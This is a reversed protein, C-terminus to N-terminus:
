AIDLRLRSVQTYEKLMFSQQVFWLVSCGLQDPESVRDYCASM